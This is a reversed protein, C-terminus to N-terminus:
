TLFESRSPSNESKFQIEVQEEEPCWGSVGDVAYLPYRGRMKIM